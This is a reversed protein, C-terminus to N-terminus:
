KSRLGQGIAPYPSVNTVVVACTSCGHGPPFIFYPEVKGRSPPASRGSCQSVCIWLYLTNTNDIFDESTALPTSIVYICVRCGEAIDNIKTTSVSYIKFLLDFNGHGVRSEEQSLFEM